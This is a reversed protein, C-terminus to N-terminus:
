LLITLYYFFESVNLSMKFLRIDESMHCVTFMYCIHWIHYLITNRISLGYM